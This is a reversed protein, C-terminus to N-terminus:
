MLDQQVVQKQKPGLTGPSVALVWALLWWTTVAVDSMPELTHFMFLPSFAFLVAAFM